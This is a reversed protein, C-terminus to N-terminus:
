VEWDFLNMLEFNKTIEIKFNGIVKKLLQINKKIQNLNSSDFLKEPEQLDKNIDNTMM